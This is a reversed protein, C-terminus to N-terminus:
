KQHLTQVDAGDVSEITVEYMGEHIRDGLGCITFDLTNCLISRLSETAQHHAKSVEIVYTRKMQEDDGEIKLVPRNGGEKIIYV